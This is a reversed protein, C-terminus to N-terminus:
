DHDVRKMAEPHAELWTRVDGEDVWLGPHARLTHVLV